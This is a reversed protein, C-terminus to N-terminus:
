DDKRVLTWKGVENGNIDFVYGEDGGMQILQRGINGLIRALEYRPAPQFADNGTKIRLEFM